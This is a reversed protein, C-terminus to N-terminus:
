HLDIALQYAALTQDVARMQEYQKAWEGASQGLMRHRAPDSILELSAGALGAPGDEYPVLLGSVGDKIMDYCGTVNYAIIPVEAAFAEAFSMPQVESKSPTVFLDLAAFYPAIEAHNIAGTFIVRGPAITEARQELRSKESGDGVIMLRANSRFRAIIEFAELLADLNKEDNLRGVYGLLCDIPAVNFHERVATGDVGAFDSLKTPNSVCLVPTKIGLGVLRQRSGEGPTTVLDVKECAKILMKEM